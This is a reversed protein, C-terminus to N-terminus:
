GVTSRVLLAIASAACVSLVAARTHGADVRSRVPGAAAFGLLLCPVLAAALGLDRLHLAGGLGLGVLSLAAGVLFYVALTSRVQRGPRRQYLLALPPGGISTATGTVGSVCGATVLTRRNVPVRITWITLGAAILVMVGVVIGLTRDALWSVVLVGVVTGPVRAPLAWRLGRWDVESRDHLLTVLPLSVALWLMLGPMLSPEVLATVPAAVLGLGLGVSGQVVAGVTVSVALVLLTGASVDLFGM